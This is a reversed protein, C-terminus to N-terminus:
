GRGGRPHYRTVETDYFQRYKQFKYSDRAIRQPCLYEDATGCAAPEKTLKHSTREKWWDNKVEKMGKKRGKTMGEEM